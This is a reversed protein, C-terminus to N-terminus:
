EEKGIHLQSFYDYALKRAENMMRRIKDEPLPILDEEPTIEAEVFHTGGSSDFYVSREGNVIHANKLREELEECFFKNLDPKDGQIRQSYKVLQSFFDLGKQYPNDLILKKESGIYNDAKLRALEDISKEKVDRVLSELDSEDPFRSRILGLFIEALENSDTEGYSILGGIFTLMRGKNDSGVIGKQIGSITTYSGEDKKLLFLSSELGESESSPVAMYLLVSEDNLQYQFVIEPSSVIKFYPGLCRASYEKTTENFQLKFDRDEVKEWQYDKDVM